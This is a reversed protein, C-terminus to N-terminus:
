HLGKSFAIDFDDKYKRGLPLDTENICIQRKTKQYSYIYNINIIYSKHIRLFYYPATALFDKLTLTRTEFSGNITYIITTHNLCEVYYINRFNIPIQVNLLTSITISDNKIHTSHFIDDLTKKIDFYSYPKSLYSFCHVDNVAQHIKEPIGTLYIMPTTNYKSSNRLKLGIDIGSINTNDSDPDASLDVDLIFLGIDYDTSINIASNANHAVFINFEPNYMLLIEKLAETQLKEDEVILINLM